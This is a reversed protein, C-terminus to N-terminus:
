KRISLVPQVISITTISNIPSWRTDRSWVNVNGVHSNKIHNIIKKYIYM